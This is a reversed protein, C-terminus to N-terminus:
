LSFSELDSQRNAQLQPPSGGIHLVASSLFSSSSFARTLRSSTESDVVFVEGSPWLERLEIHINVDTRSFMSFASGEFTCMDTYLSEQM